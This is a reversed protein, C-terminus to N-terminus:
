AVLGSEFQNHLETLNRVVTLLLSSVISQYAKLSFSQFVM